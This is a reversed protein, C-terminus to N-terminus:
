KQRRCPFTGDILLIRCRKNLSIGTAMVVLPDGLCGFPKNSPKRYTEHKYLSAPVAGLRGLLELLM